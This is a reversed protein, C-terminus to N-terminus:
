GFLADFEQLVQRHSEIPCQDNIKYHCYRTNGKFSALVHGYQNNIRECTCGQSKAIARGPEPDPVATSLISLPKLM